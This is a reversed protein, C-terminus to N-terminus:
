DVVKGWKGHLRPVPAQEGFRGVSMGIGITICWSTRDLLTRLLGCSKRLRRWRM